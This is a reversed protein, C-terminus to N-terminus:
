GTVGASSLYAKKFRQKARFVLVRLYEGDVGFQRSAEAPTKEELFVARLLDRDKKPLEDLVDRVKRRDQGNILRADM